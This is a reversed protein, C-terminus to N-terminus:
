QLVKFRGFAAESGFLESLERISIGTIILSFAPLIFVQMILKSLGFNLNSLAQNISAVLSQLGSTIGGFIGAGSQNYQLNTSAIQGQISSASNTITLLDTSNALSYSSVMTANLVYSLPLVVYTGIAVAILFGGLKRSPYFSRLILGLPLISSIATIAVFSIIAVQVEIGIGLTSLVATLYQIQGLVPSLISSFSLSLILLNIKLGAIIGLVTGLSVLAIILGSVITFLSSYGTGNISYGSLGTLYSYSFCLASNADMYQPCSYSSIGGSLANILNTIIGNSAFLLLLSGVLAANIVSQYVENKGFERLRREDLAYGLGIAIGSLSLMIAIVAVAIGFGYAGFPLALVSM